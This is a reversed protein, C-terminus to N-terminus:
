AMAGAWAALEEYHTAGMKRQRIRGQADVLVTFPLGGATNGLSAALDTGDMGALGIPFRVPTRGLFERVPTPGDIALGVVQWGRPGFAEHFRDLEPMEKVCPPCWTAWFNILLPRGQLAAWDLPGGSPQEFQHQWFGDPLLDGDAGALDAARAADPGTGAAPPSSRTAWWAGLGTAGLGAAAFLLTRRRTSSPKEPPPSTPTDSM